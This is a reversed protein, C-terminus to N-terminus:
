VEVGLIARALYGIAFSVIAVGLSISAMELFQRGFPRDLAVATYFTFAAIILVSAALSCALAALASQSILFPVILVAVTVVYAAGTYASSRAPEKGGEEAKTALYASAAMSMAAALGVVVGSLAVLRPRRLALTLGALGGTLEVLADNLGLVIAGVYRLHEERLLELLSAEHAEEERRLEEATSLEGAARAYEGQAYREAEEMLKLAFTLGLLRGLAVFLMVTPWRARVEQGTVKRWEEYHRLEDGAIGELVQRNHGTSLRALRRYIERETLEIRQYRRARERQGRKM